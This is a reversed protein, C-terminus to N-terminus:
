HRPAYNTGVSMALTEDFSNHKKCNERAPIIRLNTHVHLGCVRPNNLPVIHDVHWTNKGDLAIKARAEAYIARIKHRDAWEPCALVMFARRIASGLTQSSSRIKRWALRRMKRAHEIDKVKRAVLAELVSDGPMGICAHPIQLQLSSRFLSPHTQIDPCQPKENYVFEWARDLGCKMFWNWLRTNERAYDSLM